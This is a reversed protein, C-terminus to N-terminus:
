RSDGFYSRLFKSGRIPDKGNEAAGEGQNSEKLGLLKDGAKETRSKHPTTAFSLAQESVIMLEIM